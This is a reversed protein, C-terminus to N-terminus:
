RVEEIRFKYGTSEHCATEGVRLHGLQASFRQAEAKPVGENDCLVYAALITAARATDVPGQSRERGDPLTRILSYARKSM